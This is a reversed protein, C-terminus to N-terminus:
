EIVLDKVTSFQFDELLKKFKIETKVLNFYHRFRRKFSLNNIRPQDPDIEWPHMYFIFPKREIENISRFGRKIIPYPFLRFYGGGSIPINQGLLRVTSLPFEIISQPNRVPSQPDYVESPEPTSVHQPKLDNSDSNLSIRHASNRTILVSHEALKPDFNLMSFEFNSNGNLFILFPFRPAKPFGYFDHHIPFISSDYRYGEDAIIELAWLSENTISYSPARYGIIEEGVIAELIKKSKRIDERFQDLTMNYILRHDYSHCAVEHGQDKIRRILDPYREAIWGLVFFTARAPNRIPENLIELLRDTNRELRSEYKDWDEKKVMGEFASVMFYDELDITLANLM